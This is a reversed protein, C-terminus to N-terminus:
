FYMVGLGLALQLLSFIAFLFLDYIGIAFHPIEPWRRFTWSLIATSGIFLLVTALGIVLCPVLLAPPGLAPDPHPVGAFIHAVAAIPFLITALLLRSRRSAFSSLQMPPFLIQPPTM